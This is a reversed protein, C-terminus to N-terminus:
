NKNISSMELEMLSSDLDNKMGKKQKGIVAKGTM